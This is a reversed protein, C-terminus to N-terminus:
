HGRTREERLRKDRAPFESVSGSQCPLPDQGPSPLTPRTSQSCPTLASGTELATNLTPLHPFPPQASCDSEAGQQRPPQLRQLQPLPIAQLLTRNKQLRRSNWLTPIPSHLACTKKELITPHSPYWGPSGLPCTTPSGFQYKQGRRGSGRM